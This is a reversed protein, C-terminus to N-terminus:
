KGEKNNALCKECKRISMELKYAEARLAVCLDEVKRAQTVLEEKTSPEPKSTLEANSV